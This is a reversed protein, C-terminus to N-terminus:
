RTHRLTSVMKLPLPRMLCNVIGGFNGVWFEAWFHGIKLYIWNLLFIRKEIQFSIFVGM